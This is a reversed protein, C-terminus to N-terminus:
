WGRSARSVSSPGHAHATPVAWWSPSVPLFSNGQLGSVASSVGLSLEPARRPNRVRPVTLRTTQLRKNTPSERCCSSAVQSRWVPRWGGAKSDRVQPSGVARPGGSEAWHHVTRGWGQLPLNRGVRVPPGQRAGQLRCGGRGACGATWAAPLQFLHGLCDKNGKPSSFVLRRRALGGAM